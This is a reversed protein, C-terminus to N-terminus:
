SVVCARLRQACILTTLSPCAQRHSLLSVAVQCPLPLLKVCVMRICQVLTVKRVCTCVAVGWWPFVRLAGTSLCLCFWMSCFRAVGTPVGASFSKCVCRLKGTGHFSLRESYAGPLSLASCPAVAPESLRSGHDLLTGAVAFTRALSTCSCAATLCPWWPGIGARAGKPRHGHAPHSRRQRDPWHVVHGPKRGAHTHMVAPVRLRYGPAPPSCRWWWSQVDGGPPRSSQRPLGRGCRGRQGAAGQGHSCPWERYWRPAPPPYVGAAVAGAVAQSAMEVMVLRGAPPCPWTCRPAATGTRPLSRWTCRVSGRKCWVLESHGSLVTCHLVPSGSPTVSDM